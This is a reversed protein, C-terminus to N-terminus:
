NARELWFRTFVAGGEARMAGSPRRYHLLIRMLQCGAPTSISFAGDRWDGSAAAVEGSAFERETRADLVSFGLGTEAALNQTRYRYHLRYGAGSMVPVYQEIFDCFEPQRGELSVEMERRLTDISLSAGEVRATRWDFGRLLPQSSFDGNTLSVGASPELAGYPIVHRAALVNWIELAPAAHRRTIESDCYELLRALDSSDATRGIEEALPRAAELRKTRVLFDLYARRIRPQPPIARDLIERPDGSAQWCLQFLSAPDYAMEAANRAWIWFDALDGHRLYFGALTWRPMYTRDMRAAHLLAAEAERRDGATEAGLGRAIWAATYRPNLELARDLESNGTDSDAQGQWQRFHYEADDPTLSLALQASRWGSLGGLLLMGAAVLIRYAMEGM